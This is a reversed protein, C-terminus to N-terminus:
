WMYAVVLYMKTCKFAVCLIKGKSSNSPPSRGGLLEWLNVPIGKSVADYQPKNNGMNLNIVTISILSFYHQQSWLFGRFQYNNVPTSFLAGYKNLSPWTHILCFYKQCGQVYYFIKPTKLERFCVTMKPVHLSFVSIHLVTTVRTPQPILSQSIPLPTRRKSFHQRWITNSAYLLQFAPM